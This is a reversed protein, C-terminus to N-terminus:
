VGRAMNEFRTYTGLFALRKMGIPGSRHKAIIVEASGKDPSENNYVEDRYLFMVVDADQELSGSERLDALMPRKDTRSELNRSLQSLAVIPVSLERALVKLGRSIESVELQRNESSSGGSMLQLYDIVILGLGERSKLRRAKARIEMVTVRPNDDLYLPVELRGVARGLKTWDSETLRGNRLKTSDVRAESCLIRQTLEAHGMELSFVLVPTRATMAAHVAMGLGFATNHVYIDAAVFNHTGPVNFDYVQEIGDATITVIEDWQIDPAVWWRLVDSDLAEALAAITERRPARRYPHWNRIASQGALHNIEAWTREGKEKVVDDWVEIPLTDRTPESTIEYLFPRMPTSLEYEVRTPCAGMRLLLHAVDVSLQECPTVFCNDVVGLEDLFVAICDKTLTFVETLVGGLDESRRAMNAIERPSAVDPGFVALAAPVAIDMGVTIDEVPQWGRGTLLPHAATLRISRGSRTTIRYLQKAGDDYFGAFPRTHMAGTDDISLCSVDTGSVGIRYWEQATRVTGTSPDVMPTDWAVCKGMAPRAGVINLTSPQLGSLLEDLDNYGTALGTITDGREYTEQLKDMTLPMLDVLPQVSDTVRDEAVEFVKTEAEDLAKQVDDPENYALEAIESAVGILRRLVATDQVIKAYRAVNSIAPTANLLELLLPTGGIEDLLGSRRLIDAVTVADVPEGSGNLSRIADYIHQHAPKYFDQENLGLEVVTGIADRSLLLAGLVSEEASLNHPPVRGENRRVTRPRDRSTDTLSM